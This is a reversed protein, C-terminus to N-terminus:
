SVPVEGFELVDEGPPLDAATAGADLARLRPPSWPRRRRVPGTATLPHEAM